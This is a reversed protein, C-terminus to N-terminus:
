QAAAPMTPNGELRQSAAQEAAIAPSAPPPTALVQGTAPPTSRVNATAHARKAAAKEFLLMNEPLARRTAWNVLFKPISGGPDSVTRFTIVYSGGLPLSEWSGFTLPLEVAGQYQERIERRVEPYATEPLRMWTSRHHGREGDIDREERSRNFWYRKAIPVLRPGKMVQCFDRRESDSYLRRSDVLLSNFEPHHEVDGLAAFLDDPTVEPDLIMRGMYANLGIEKIRKQYVLVRKKESHLVWGDPNDLISQIHAAFAPDFAQRTADARPNPALSESRAPATAAPTAFPLLLGVTLSALLRGRNKHHHPLGPQLGRRAITRLPLALLTSLLEPM